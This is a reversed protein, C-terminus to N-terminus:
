QTWFVLPILNEHAFRRSFPRKTYIEIFRFEAWKWHLSAEMKVLHYKGITTQRLCQSFTEVSIVRLWGDIFELTSAFNPQAIGELLQHNLDLEVLFLIFFLSELLTDLVSTFTFVVVALGAAASVLSLPSILKLCFVLTTWPSLLSYPTVPSM